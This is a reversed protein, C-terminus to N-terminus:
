VEFYPDYMGCIQLNSVLIHLTKVTPNVAMIGYFVGRLSEGPDLPEMFRCLVSLKSDVPLDHVYCLCPCFLIIIVSLVVLAALLVGTIRLLEATFRLHLLGDSKEDRKRLM